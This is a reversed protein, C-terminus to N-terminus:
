PTRPETAPRPQAAALAADLTDVLESVRRRWPALDALSIFEGRGRITAVEMDVPGRIHKVLSLAAERLRAADEAAEPGAPAADRERLAGGARLATLAMSVSFCASVVLRHEDTYRRGVAILKESAGDLDRRAGDLLAEVEDAQPLRARADGRRRAGALYCANPPYALTHLGHTKAHECPPWWEGDISAHAAV